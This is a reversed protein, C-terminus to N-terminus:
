FSLVAFLARPADLPYLSDKPPCKCSHQLHKALNPEEPSQCPSNEQSPLETSSKGEPSKQAYSGDIWPQIVEEMRSNSIEDLHCPKKAVHPSETEEQLCHTDEFRVRKTRLQPTSDQCPVKAALVSLKVSRIFPEDQTLVLHVPAPYRENKLGQDMFHQIRTYVHQFLEGVSFCSKKSLMRLETALAQSFSYHGVGNAEAGFSCAGILETVGNGESDNGVGSSCCDLSNLCRKTGDRTIESNWEV